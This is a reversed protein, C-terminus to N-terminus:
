PRQQTKSGGRMADIIQRLAASIESVFDQIDYSLEEEEILPGTPGNEVVSSKKVFVGFVAAAVMPVFWLIALMVLGVGAGMAVDTREWEHSAHHSAYRTKILLWFGVAILTITWFLAFNKLVNWATGGERMEGKKLPRMALYVPATLPGVLFTISAWSPGLVYRRRRADIFLWVAIAGYLVFYFYSFTPNDGPLSAVGLAILV